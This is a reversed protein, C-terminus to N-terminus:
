LRFQQNLDALEVSTKKAAGVAAHIEQLRRVTDEMMGNQDSVASFIQSVGANQQSVAAAIQRVGATAAKVISSLEKIHDGSAKVQVLGGEIRQSGSQTIAVAEGIQSGINELIERVRDTAQISQDALTRIERAVVAFGKGHEGSRVAEIAANLALMNSQDALDKVTQTINGVQDTWDSLRAIKEAIQDVQSRIDTLAALTQEVTAEGTAGVSEAREAVELIGETKDFVMESTQKLQQSTVQTEQLAAAQRTINKGQADTATGVKEVAELIGGLAARTMKTLQRVANSSTRHVLFVVLALVALAALLLSWTLQRRSETAVQGVTDLPVRVELAGMLDGLVFHGPSVKQTARYATLAPGAELANHCNICSTDSAPDASLYRFVRRGDLEQVASYPKWQYSQMAASYAEGGGVKAAVEREQAELAAWGTRLFEDSLGKAPNVNWRSVLSYSTGQGSGERNNQEGVLRVLVAPLPLAGAGDVSGASTTQVAKDGELKRVVDQSYVQRMARVQSSMSSALEEAQKLIIRDSSTSVEYLVLAALGLFATATALTITALSSRQTLVLQSAPKQATEAM